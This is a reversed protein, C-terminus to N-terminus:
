LKAIFEDATMETVLNVAFWKKGLDKISAGFHYIEDDVILWRDHSKNFSHLTLQANFYQRNYTEFAHLLAVTQKQSHVYIDVSVKENRLSFRELVSADVYDDVLVLRKTARKILNEVLLFADFMQGEFFVGLKPKLEGSDLKSFIEDIKKGNEIQKFELAEIRQFVQANAVMFRRMSVFARMIQLNVQIAQESNLVSSLMAVGTETFAFPHYRLGGRKNSTAIQSRLSEFEEDTLEFMIDSPFRNRNRRVQEKLRKTEIGYLCALDSDLMVQMGRISHIMSEVIQSDPLILVQTNADEVM